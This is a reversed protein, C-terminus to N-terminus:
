NIISEPSISVEETFVHELQHTDDPVSMGAYPKMEASFFRSVKYKVSYEQSQDYSFGINISEIGKFYDPCPITKKIHSIIKNTIEEDVPLPGDILFDILKPRERIFMTLRDTFTVKDKKILHEIGARILETNLKCM